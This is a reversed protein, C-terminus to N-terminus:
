PTTTIPFDPIVFQRGNLFKNYQEGLNQIYQETAKSLSGNTDFSDPTLPEPLVVGM